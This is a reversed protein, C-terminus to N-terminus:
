TPVIIVAPATIPSMLAPPVAATPAVLAAVISRMIAPPMLAATLPAVASMHRLRLLSLRDRVDSGCRHRVDRLRLANLGDPNFRRPRNRHHRPHCRRGWRRRWGRHLVNVIRWEPFANELWKAHCPM